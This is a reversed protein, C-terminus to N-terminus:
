VDASRRNESSDEADTEHTTFPFCISLLKLWKAFTEPSTSRTVFLRGFCAVDHCMWERVIPESTFMVEFGARSAQRVAERSMDGGPISAVFCGAGILENLKERCRFWEDFMEASSLQRFVDPHSCSHGAVVHGRDHM